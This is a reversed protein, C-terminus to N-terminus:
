NIYSIFYGLKGNNMYPILTEVRQMKIRFTTPLPYLESVLETLKESIESMSYLNGCKILCVVEDYNEQIFRFQEIDFGMEHIMKTICIRLLIPSIVIEKGIHLLVLARSKLIEITRYSSGCNCIPGDVLEDEVEYRIVPMAHQNLATVYTKEGKGYQLDVEDELIHLHHHNCEKAIAWMERIGYQEAVPCGFFASFAEKEEPLIQEGTLEIYKLSEIRPKNYRRMYYMLIYTVSPTSFIWEIKKENMMQYYLDFSKDDLHIESMFLVNRDQLCKTDYDITTFYGYPAGISIDFYERRWKMLQLALRSREQRTKGIKLPVGTTGSTHEWILTDQNIEDSIMQYYNEIFKRKDMICIDAYARTAEEITNLTVGKLAERYYPVHMQVYQLLEKIKREDM